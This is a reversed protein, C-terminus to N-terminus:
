QLLFTVSVQANIKITGPAFTELSEFNSAGSGMASFNSMVNQQASFGSHTPVHETITIAKGITQGIAAAMAMAKEKAAKMAQERAKDRNERLKSTEFYVNKVESLGTKLVDSFFEEFRAIETLRVLVTKSILYGRFVRKELGDADYVRRGNESATEYQMDVAIFNTQINQPLIGFRRTLDLIKAVTEDNQKKATNIDKHLKQVELSLVVEDPPVRIEASGTVTISSKTDFTQASSEICYAFVLTFVISFLRM